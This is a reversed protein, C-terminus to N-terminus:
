RLWQWPSGSHPTPNPVGFFIGQARVDNITQFLECLNLFDTNAMATDETSSAFKLRLLEHEPVSHPQKYQLSKVTM